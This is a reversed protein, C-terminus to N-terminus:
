YIPGVPVQSDELNLAADAILKEMLLNIQKDNMEPLQPEILYKEGRLTVYVGVNEHNAQIEADKVAIKFQEKEACGADQCYM